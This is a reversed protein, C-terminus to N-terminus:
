RKLIFKRLGFDHIAQDIAPHPQFYWAILTYDRGVPIALMTAETLIEGDIPRDVDMFFRYIDGWNALRIFKQFQDNRFMLSIPQIILNVNRKSLYDLPAIIRHGAAGSFKEAIKPIERDTLGLFDVAQLESYYPMAGAAGVSLIVDRDGFLRKLQRGIDIWNEDPAYLHGRLSEIKEVGTAYYVNAFDHMNNLSALLLALVLGAVIRKEALFIDLTAIISIYMMPMVPVLFRYEMFDGGVAIVYIFWVFVFGLMWGAPLNKLWLRKAMWITLLLYPLLVYHLVFLYIYYFGFGLGSIGHVKANFSNPLLAGYYVLKWILWPLVIILFPTVAPLLLQKRNKGTSMWWMVAAGAALIVGDPRTLIAANLLLSLILTGKATWGEKSYKVLVFFVSLYELLQLSTELGSTAFGAISHNFGVLALVALALQRKRLVRLALFFTLILSGLHIPINLLVSALEPKVGLRMFGAMLLTWLFNSYGEVFEGPNWVLGNGEALNKAYRFSIFADDVLMVRHFAYYMSILICLILFIKYNRDFYPKLKSLRNVQKM